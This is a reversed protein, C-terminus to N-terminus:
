VQRFLVTLFTKGQDLEVMMKEYIHKLQKWLYHQLRCPVWQIHKHEYYLTGQQQRNCHAEALLDPLLM